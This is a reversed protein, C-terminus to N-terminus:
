SHSEGRVQADQCYAVKTQITGRHTAIHKTQLLRNRTRQHRYWHLSCGDCRKLPCYCSTYCFYDLSHSRYSCLIHRKTHNSIKGMQFRRALWGLATDRLELLQQLHNLRHLSAPGPGTCWVTWLTQDTSTIYDARLNRTEFLWPFKSELLSCSM